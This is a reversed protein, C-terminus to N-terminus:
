LARREREFKVLAPAPRWENEREGDQAMGVIVPSSDGLAETLKKGRTLELPVTAFVPFRTVSELERTNAITDRGVEAFFIMFSALFVATFGGLVTDVLPRPRFPVVSYTPSQQVAVNLLRNENMADAMQAEDAKQTYLQYNNELDAVKQKLTTFAVTAGEVNSLNSKLGAIQQKLASEKARLAQRESENQIISGTVAQWVPNVDTSTEQSKMQEANGLAVKTDAIKKDVEQVLRDAPTFKTLLGTRQNELEALMTNLREVSYDNPIERQQTMQRTPISKLQRTEGGLRQSIESVQADTDRLEAEADNIERDKNQESDALSVIQNQQQYAALQQQAQDLQSKYNAAQDAFFKATGPPQAIERQKALFANLLRNLADTAAKPDSATYTVHIVNSKRILDVSLHKEFDRVARDHARYQAETLSGIPRNNWDPDVVVNALSTSQLMQIESNIQEETVGNITITGNVRSPTIQEDGRKNEVLIDMESRYERPRLLTYAVSASFVVVIVFLWLKRHRFVAELIQRVSVREQMAQVNGPLSQMPRYMEKAGLDGRRVALGSIPEAGDMATSVRENREKENQM